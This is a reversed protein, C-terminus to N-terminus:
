DSASQEKSLAIRERMEASFQHPHMLGYRAMKMTLEELHMSGNDIADTFFDRLEDCDLLEDELETVTAKYEDVETESHGTLLGEGIARRVMDDLNRRLADVPVGNPTYTVDLILQLRVVDENKTSM